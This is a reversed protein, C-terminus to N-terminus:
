ATRGYNKGLLALDKADVIGDTNLDAKQNWNPDGPKSGYAQNLLILDNIIVTGDRNIDGVIPAKIEVTGDIFINDIKDTEGIITSAEANIEYNFGTPVDTTDWNFILTTSKCRSLNTVTKTGIIRNYYETTVTFTENVTGENRATVTINVVQGEYVTTASTELTVIAVDHVTTTPNMLPYNDGWHPLLDPPYDGVGDGDTDQGLYDSWYNGYYKGAIKIYWTNPSNGHQFAQMVNELFNNKYISSGTSASTLYIGYANYSATNFTVTNTDSDYFQIGWDNNSVLNNDVVNTNSLVLYIGCSNDSATNRLVNNRTSGYLEIGYGGGSAINDRINIDNSYLSYIGILKGSVNNQDISSLSSSLLYIGYSTDSVTNGVIFSNSLGELKIGNASKSVYNGSVNNNSSSVVRIGIMSNQILTNNVVTNGSGAVLLNVGFANNLLKNSSITHNGFTTAEIGSFNQGNRITFGSIKISSNTLTVVNDIGQGDIITTASNEGRLVINSQNIVVNEYYTGPRVIITDGPIAKYVAEQITRYNDPVYIVGPSARVTLFQPSLM